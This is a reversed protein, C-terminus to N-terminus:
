YGHVAGSNVFKKRMVTRIAELILEAIEHNWAYGNPSKTVFFIIKKNPDMGVIECLREWSLFTEQRYYHDYHAVGGVVVKKPPIDQITLLEKKMIETWAVVRDPIAGPMGRTTTNDWSLIVSIVKVGRKRAERMLFQDYDFTGLSSVVLVDPNHKRFLEAHISPSFFAHEIWLVSKRMWCSKRCLRQLANFFLFFIKWKGSSFKKRNDKKYAEYLDDITRLDYNANAVFLRLSKLFVETRSKSIYEKCERERYHEMIVNKHQRYNDYFGDQPNPVLLVIKNGSEVLTKFIDTQLFYRIAFGQNVALLITRTM